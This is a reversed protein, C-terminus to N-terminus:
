SPIWIQRAEIVEVDEPLPLPSSSKTYFALGKYGTLYRYHRRLIGGRATVVLPSEARALIAGFGGPDVRVVVGSAKTAEAIRQSEAAAGAGAGTSM